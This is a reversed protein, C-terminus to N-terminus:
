ILGSRLVPRLQSIVFGRKAIKETIGGQERAQINKHKATLDNFIADLTRVRHLAEEKAPIDHTLRAVDHAHVAASMEWAVFVIMNERDEESLGYFAKEQEELEMHAAILGRARHQTENDLSSPDAGLSELSM